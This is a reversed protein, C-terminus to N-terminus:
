NNTTDVKHENQRTPGSPLPNGGGSRPLAEIVTHTIKPPNQTVPSPPPDRYDDTYVPPLIDLAPERLQNDKHVTDQHILPEEDELPDLQYIQLRNLSASERRQFCQTVKAWVRTGKLIYKYFHYGLIVLFLIFSIAMSTNTLALQGENTEVIHYTVLQDQNTERIYLM